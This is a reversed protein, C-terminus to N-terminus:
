DVGPGKWEEGDSRMARVIQLIEATNGFEENSREKLIAVDAQLADLKGNADAIRKTLKGVSRVLGDVNSTIGDLVDFLDPKGDNGPM